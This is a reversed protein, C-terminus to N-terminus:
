TLVQISQGRITADTSHHNKWVMRYRGAPLDDIDVPLKVSEGDVTYDRWVVYGRERYQLTMGPEDKGFDINVPPYTGAVIMPYHYCVNPRGQYPNNVAHFHFSM